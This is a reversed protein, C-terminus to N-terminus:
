DKICKLYGGPQNTMLRKKDFTLDVEFRDNEQLFMDLATKPSNGPKWDRPRHKQVPFYEVMTDGCILYNGKGVLEEYLKLEKYVHDCTHDSDLHVMVNRSDGIKNKVYNFTDEDISSKEILEIRHALKHNMIREKLDDPIFIDIGIIKGKDLIEMLTAYFLVSGAWAVGVEIIYEPQTAYIIEQFTILDEPTQLSPEGMWTTQHIWNHRDAETFVELAKDQLAKDDYMEDAWERRLEEFERRTYIKKM